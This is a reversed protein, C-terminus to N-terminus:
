HSRELFKDRLLGRLRELESEYSADDALNNMEEPDEVENYLEIGKDGKEGWEVYRWGDTRVSRGPAEAFQVQSYAPRDWKAEPNGLLPLLSTGELQDPPELDALEAITPYIDVFEVIAACDHSSPSLDPAFIILPARTSEEFLSNKRWLGHEGLHYGHDGWLVIITNDGLGLQDVAGLLRGVQEDVFSICADYALICERAQLATTGFNPWEPTSALAAGPVLAQYNEPVLPLPTKEISYLDFYKKPAIYPIHPRYFGAAIFFPRDRKESLLRITEDAM